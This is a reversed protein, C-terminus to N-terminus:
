IRCFYHFIPDQSESKRSFDATRLMCLTPKLICTWHLGSSSAPSPIIAITIITLITTNTISIMTGSACLCASESQWWEHWVTLFSVSQWQVFNNHPFHFKESRVCIEPAARLYQKMMSVALLSELLSHLLTWLLIDLLSGLLSQYPPWTGAPEGNSKMCRYCGQPLCMYVDM